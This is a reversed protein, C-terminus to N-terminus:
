PGALSVALSLTLVQWRSLLGPDPLLGPHEMRIAVCVAGLALLLLLYLLMMSM